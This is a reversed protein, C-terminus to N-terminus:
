KAYGPRHRAAARGAGRVARALAAGTHQCHRVRHESKPVPRAQSRLEVRHAFQPLAAPMPVDGIVLLRADRQWEREHARLWHRGEPAPLAM